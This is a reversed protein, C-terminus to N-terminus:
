EVDDASIEATALGKTKPNAVAGPTQTTENVGGRPNRNIDGNPLLLGNRDYLSRARLYPDVKWYDVRMREAIANREAQLVKAKEGEHNLIWDITAVEYERYLHKREALLKDRTATDGLKDDDGPTPEIFKYEWDEDGGLEKLVHDKEIFQQMDKVNNTFHVKSAM